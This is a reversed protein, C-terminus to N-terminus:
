KAWEASAVIPLQFAIEESEIGRQRVLQLLIGGIARLDATEVAGVPLPDSLVVEAESLEGKSIQVNSAQIGGHPRGCARKFDLAGQAISRIIHQFAGRPLAVRGILLKNVSFDYYRTAYWVGREDRGTELVPEIYRSAAAGKEQVALAELRAHAREADLVM